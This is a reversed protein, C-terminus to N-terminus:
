KWPLEVDNLKEPLTNGLKIQKLNLEFYKEEGNKYASYATNLEELTVSNLYFIPPDLTSNDMFMYSYYYSIKDESRDELLLVFKVHEGGYGYDISGDASYTIYGVLLEPDDPDFINIYLDSDLKDILDQVSLFSEIKKVDNVAETIVEINKVTENKTDKKSCSFLLVLIFLAIFRM